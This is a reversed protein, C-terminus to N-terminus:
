NDKEKLEILATVGVPDNSPTGVPQNEIVKTICRVVKPPINRASAVILGEARGRARVLFMLKLRASHSKLGGEDVVCDAMKHALKKLSGHARGVAGNEFSVSVVRAKYGGSIAGEEGGDEDDEAGGDAGAGVSADSQPEPGHLMGLEEALTRTDVLIHLPPDLEEPALCREKGSHGDIEKGYYCTLESSSAAAAPSVSAKPRPARGDAAATAARADRGHHGKRHKRREASAEPVCLLATILAAAAAGLGLAAATRSRHSLVPQVQEAGARPGAVM